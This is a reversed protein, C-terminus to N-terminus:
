RRRKRAVKFFERTVKEQVRALQYDLLVDFTEGVNLHYFTILKRLMNIPITSGCNREWDSICQGSALKLHRAVDMQSLKRKLRATKLYKGLDQRQM